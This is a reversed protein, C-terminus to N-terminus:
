YYQFTLTVQCADVCYQLCNKRQEPAKGQLIEQIVWCKLARTFMLAKVEEFNSSKDSFLGALTVGRWLADQFITVQEAFQQAPFQTYALPM